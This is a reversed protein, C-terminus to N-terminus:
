DIVAGLATAIFISPSLLAAMTKDDLQGTIQIPNVVLIYAMALFTTLGAFIEVKFSSGFRGIGFYRDIASKFGKGKGAQAVTQVSGTGDAESQVQEPEPKKDETNDM